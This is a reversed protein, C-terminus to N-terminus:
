LFVAQCSVPSLTIERSQGSKQRIVVELETDSSNSLFLFEGEPGEKRMYSFHGNQPSQRCDATLSFETRGLATELKEGTGALEALLATGEAAGEPEIIESPIRGWM